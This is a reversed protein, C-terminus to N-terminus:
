SFATRYVSVHHPSDDTFPTMAMDAWREALSLGAAAAMADLEGPTSWRVMWPRLRVGGSETFTVFQGEARQEGPDHRSVSLVVHDVGMSRVEVSSGSGAQPDAAADPVFAEVVFSGGPALREAVAAFCRRQAGDDVLNFLTNYAALAVDFPGDPLDDVMDGHVVTVSGGVDATALRELMAASTDIGTVTLGARAMPIALRGTGVGLELVSGAPRALRAALAVTADVDTVTAYWDDYVDAFAEGYSDAGYGQM